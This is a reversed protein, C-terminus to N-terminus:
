SHCRCTVGFSGSVRSALRARADGVVVRACDRRGGLPVQHLWICRCFPADFRASARHQAGDTRLQQGRGLLLTAACSCSFTEFRRSIIGGIPRVRRHASQCTRPASASGEALATSPGSHATGKVVVTYGFLHALRWSVASGGDQWRRRDSMHMKIFEADDDESQSSSQASSEALRRSFSCVSM